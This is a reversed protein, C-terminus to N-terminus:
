NNKPSITAIWIKNASVKISPISICTESVLSSNRFFVIRWMTSYDFFVATSKTELALFWGSSYNSYYCEPFFTQNVVQKLFFVPLKLFWIRFSLFIFGLQLAPCKRARFSEKCLIFGWIQSLFILKWLFDSGFQHRFHLIFKNLFCFNFFSGFYEFLCDKAKEFRGTEKLLFSVWFQPNPANKGIPNLTQVPPMTISFIFDFFLFILVCFMHLFVFLMIRSFHISFHIQLFVLIFLVLWIKIRSFPLLAVIQNQCNQGNPKRNCPNFPVLQYITKRVM